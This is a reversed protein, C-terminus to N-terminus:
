VLPLPNLRSDALGANDLNKAQSSQARCQLVVNVAEDANIAHKSGQRQNGALNEGCNKRQLAHPLRSVQWTRTGLHMDDASAEVEFAGDEVTPVVHRLYRKGPRLDPCQAGALM